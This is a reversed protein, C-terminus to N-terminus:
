RRPRRRLPPGADYSVPRPQEIARAAPPSTPLGGTTGTALLDLSPPSTSAPPRCTATSRGAHLLVPRHRRHPRLGLEGHRRRADHRGDEAPREEERVGCPTNSRWASCTSARARTPPPCRRATRRRGAAVALERRRAGGAPAPRGPRRRVLLRAGQRSSTPGPRRRRITTSAAATRRARSPTRSAPSPCCSGARRPLGRRHRAGAAHQAEPGPAGAHAAHRGQRAPERGDLARGPAAHRADGAACRRAGDARGDGPPAPPHVRAGGARGHQARAPPDAAPDGEASQDLFAGLREGLVDLPQRWDYPFREVRHSDALRRACSATSCASCSRPRSAPASGASRRWAAAHRHGGPRVLRPGQREGAPALGDRGAAGRGGSSRDRARRASARLEARPPMTRRTPCRSSPTSRRRRRTGGALRAAGRAHRRQHLLPLALRRRRPRVARACPGQARHRRADRDTDVVLDNDDNDFLLFDTLLVGLRELLNGGEIDGAIVAM